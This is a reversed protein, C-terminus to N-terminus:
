CDLENNLDKWDFIDIFLVVASFPPAPKDSGRRPATIRLANSSSRCHWRTWFVPRSRALADHLMTSRLAHVTAAVFKFDHPNGDFQRIRGSTARRQAIISSNRRGGQLGRRRPRGISPM